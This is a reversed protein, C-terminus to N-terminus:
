FLGTRGAFFEIRKNLAEFAGSVADVQDDHEAAQTAFVDAEDLFDKNWAGRVLYVNGAEAAASLPFARLEKSGTAPVGQFTYGKLIYRRYHDITNVGSSGPEQEMFIHTRKGDMEGTQKILDEVGKPTTRTRRMDVIWYIGDKEVVYAGATYDPDKGDKQETAALDWFRVGRADRPYDPVIKFWERKLMRVADRPRPHQQFLSAWTYSGVAKKTAEIWEHGYGHEPWLPEGVARGLLDNEEAEAPLDLVDWLGGDEVRGDQELLKGALDKEHWRTLIIIVRGGPHLRTLLTNQWEEWVNNRYTESEAEARNKIPDDILLLDAGEGTIAGGIGASIMGGRYNDIGWNTKMSVNPDIGVDFFEGGYATIKKKNANGFKKALSDGYSAAIVRRNPQKGIFWSPATESITMSKGHRPPMFIM